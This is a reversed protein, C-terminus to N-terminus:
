KRLDISLCICRYDSWTLIIFSQRRAYRESVTDTTIIWYFLAITHVIGLVIFFSAVSLLVVSIDLLLWRNESTWWSVFVAKEAEFSCLLLNCVVTRKWFHIMQLEEVHHGTTTFSVGTFLYTIDIIFCVCENGAMENEPTWRSVFVDKIAEFWWLLLLGVVTRKWFHIM